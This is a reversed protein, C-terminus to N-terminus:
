HDMSTYAARICNFLSTVHFYLTMEQILQCNHMTALHHTMFLPLLMLAAGRQLSLLGIRLGFIEYKCCERQQTLVPRTRQFYKM